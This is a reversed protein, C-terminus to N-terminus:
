WRRRWSPRRIMGGSYTGALRGAVDALGMEALAAEARPRRDRRPVDYLRTFLWVNEYGTLQGDISLQQPVYGLTRRVRMRNRHTDLGFVEATGAVPRLLTTLMRITTTKGAGNPGLLGFVEGAEVRFSVENVARVDGFAYVLDRCEVAPTDRTM